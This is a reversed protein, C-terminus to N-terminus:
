TGKENSQYIFRREEIPLFRDAPYEPIIKLIDHVMGGTDMGWASRIIRQIKKEFDPPLKCNNKSYFIKPHDTKTPTEDTYWIEEKLKEGPRIRTIQIPIDKGPVLGALSIMHKALDLIKMPEGMDLVFICGGKGLSAAELVLKCAEDISMFFREMEPHTVTVSKAEAIQKEFVTFVSGRSGIVNGFRVCIYGQNGKQSIYQCYLECLRKSAGMVNTPHVAKDTSIQIFKEVGYKLAAQILIVTTELNNLIAETHNVEMSPVHKYAASHFIIYPQHEEFIKDLRCRNSVNMVFPEIPCSGRLENELYFLSNEDKDIMLLKKPEFLRIQRCLESGISGAAGTVCVSKHNLLSGVRRIDMASQERGLLDEIRVKRVRSFTVRGDLLEKPGPVIRFPVGCKECASVIRKLDSSTAHPIAIVVEDINESHVLRCIDGTNGKIRVNHITRNLKSPDDDVLAIVDYGYKPNSRSQQVLMAAANGAGAILVRKRKEEMRHIELIYRCLARISGFFTLSFFWYIIFISRPIRIVPIAVDVVYLFGVAATHLFFLKKFDRYSWYVWFESYAGFLSFSLVSLVVLIPLSIYVMDLYASPIMGEFRVWYALYYAVLISVIDLVIKIVKRISPRLQVLFDKSKKFSQFM